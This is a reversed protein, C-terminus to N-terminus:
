YRVKIIQEFSVTKGSAEVVNVTVNLITPDNPNQTVNVSIVAQLQEGLSVERGTKILQTQFDQLKKLSMTVQSTIQSILFSINTVRQGILSELASGIEQHFPNSTIKTITFKEVNQMLLYEDKVVALNGQTDYSLDDYYGSGLCKNCYNITTLYNIEFYDTPSKWRNKLYIVRVTPDNFDNVVNYMTNPILNGCVYVKVTGISAIPYATRITHQDSDITTQERYILHDCKTTLKIDFSM